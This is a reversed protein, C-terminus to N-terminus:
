YAMVLIGYSAAVLSKGAADLVECIGKQVDNLLDGPTMVSAERGNEYVM